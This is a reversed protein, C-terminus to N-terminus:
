NEVVYTYTFFGVGLMLVDYLLVLAVSFSVDAWTTTPIYVYAATASAAALVAPLTLPLLLIPLLVERSRTQMTMATVLVGVAAYGVTGLFLIGLVSPRWFPRNFFITFLVVLLLELITLFLTLSIVKGVYLASRDIPAMLLADFSQNEREAAFSRNLGLTGALLIIVWLLGASVNRGASLDGQIALNFTVVAAIAFFLMVSVTQGTHREITVDKWVVARVAAWFTPSTPM